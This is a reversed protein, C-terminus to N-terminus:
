FGAFTMLLGFPLPLSAVSSTRSSSKEPRYNPAMSAGVGVPRVTKLIAIGKELQKRVVWEVAASVHPRGGVRVATRARALGAQVRERIRAREFEAFVGMM